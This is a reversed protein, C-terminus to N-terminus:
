DKVLQGGVMTHVVEGKASLLVLDADSGVALEGKTDAGILQAPNRTGLIVSQQLSWKAFSMVNRVARDLTLVSGALKGEFEARDGRVQVQFPGLQYTGDPMGTASIADTVLVARDIGKAKLFVQVVAPAVHVGDAIIDAMIREDSLVAGLIGPERHDLARMANFTHTASVAGAAIGKAAEEFTANSHGISTFVGRERAHRIVENAGPVEPAITMMRLTGGSADLIREFLDVTPSVLYEAPHVGCKAASIFPGELHIGLPRAGAQSVDEACIINGLRDVAGLIREMSATVTTPLYSTVGHKALAKEFAIRGSPDDRMVDHGAGGHVHIDIFGPAVVLDPFDLHQAYAPVELDSRTGLDQITGSDILVVPNAIVDTPTFLRAATVCTKM